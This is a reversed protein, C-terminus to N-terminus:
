TPGSMANVDGPMGGSGPMAGGPPFGPGPVAPPPPPTAPAAPAALDPEAVRLRPPILEQVAGSQRQLVWAVARRQM